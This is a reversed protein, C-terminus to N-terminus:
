RGRLADQRLGRPAILNRMPLVIPYFRLRMSGWNVSSYHSHSIKKLISQAFFDLDAAFPNRDGALRGLDFAIDKVHFFIAHRSVDVNFLDNDDPIRLLLLGM